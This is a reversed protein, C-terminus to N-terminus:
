LTGGKSKKSARETSEGWAQQGGRGNTLSPLTGSVGASMMSEGLGPGLDGMATKSRGGKSRAAGHSRSAAVNKNAGRSTEHKLMRALSKNQTTLAQQRTQAYQMKAIM